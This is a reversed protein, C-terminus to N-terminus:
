APGKEEQKNTGAVPNRDCLGEGIAWRFFASLSARSRNAAVPGNEKAITSVQAAVNARGISALALGHLPKWHNELHRKTEEYSRPKM